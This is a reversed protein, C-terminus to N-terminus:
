AVSIYSFCYFIEEMFFRLALIFSEKDTARHLDQSPTIGHL